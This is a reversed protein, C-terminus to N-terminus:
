FLILFILLCILGTASLILKPRQKKIAIFINLSLAIIALVLLIKYFWSSIDLINGISPNPYDTLFTYKDMLSSTAPAQTWELDYVAQNGAQDVLVLAPLVTTAFLDKNYVVAQKQWSGDDQKNLELIDDNIHLSARTVDSNTQTSVSIAWADKQDLQEVRLETLAPDYNPVSVDVQLNYKPSAFNEQETILKLQLQHAGMALDLPVELYDSDMETYLSILLKDYDYVKLLGNVPSWVKLTVATQDLIADQLPSVLRPYDSAEVEVQPQKQNVALVQQILDEVTKNPAVATPMAIAVNPPEPPQSIISPDAFYQAILTTENDHFLGVVAGVGIESFDADILNAYHTSSKQWATMVEEPQAFGMALNEGAVAYNYNVTKLWSALSRGDTGVHAFYQNLLMDQAKAYAAQNLLPNVALQRVGVNQRIQNTLAVIKETHALLVDPSLWAVLPFTVVFMAVLLKIAVSALGYFALRQPQLSQPQYDNGAHPIFFDRLKGKGLPNRGQIIEDRDNVGDDDSDKSYPDTGILLEVEDTLGDQDSDQTGYKQNLFDLFDATSSQRKKFGFM